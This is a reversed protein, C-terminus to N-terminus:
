QGAAIDLAVTFDSGGSIVFHYKDGNMTLPAVFHGPELLQLTLPTAKGGPPTVTVTATQLPLETGKADFFTSHFNLPGPKDPDLYVQVSRGDALHAIYLTPIAGSGKRVEITPPVTRTTVTLPVEVSSAGNEVLVTVTWTGSLSLNGGSGGYMGAGQRALSLSSTGVDSRSPFTFRLSVGSADVARGSDYDVVSVTFRNFGATGPSAAFHVKVTTGADSGDATVSPAAAASASSVPPAVNVLAAAALLACGAVVVETSAVRRLGRVSREARPVTGWRNVAGLCALVFVLVLKLIVLRGFATAGLAYWSQVEVVSRVIGTGVV